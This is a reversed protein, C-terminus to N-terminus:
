ERGVDAVYPHMSVQIQPPVGEFENPHERRGPCSRHNISEHARVLHRIHRQRNIRLSQGQAPACGSLVDRPHRRRSRTASARVAPSDVGLRPASRDIKLRAPPGLVGQNHLQPSTTGARADANTHVSYYGRVLDDSHRLAETARLRGKGMALWLVPSLREASFHHGQSQRHEAGGHRGAKLLIAAHM